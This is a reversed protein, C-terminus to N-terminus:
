KRAPPAPSYERTWSDSLDDRRPKYVDEYFRQRSELTARDFNAVIRVAEEWAARFNERTGFRFVVARDFAEATQDQDGITFVLQEAKPDRFAEDDGL